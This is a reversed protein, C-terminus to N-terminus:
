EVYWKGQAKLNNITKQHASLSNNYYFNMKNDTVFYTATFNKEPSAAALIASESPACLPGPPLGETKYTNYRDNGYPYKMTPDSELRRPGQWDPSELRNYFVAAVKPMDKTSASAELEVVSAMTLIEHITYGSEKIQNRVAETLKNDLNQLMKRIALEACEASDYNYFEYTDPFLYGEFKYHVESVPIENVFDFDYKGNKVANRFDSKTCVGNEELIKMIDDISAQEPITVKVSQATAGETQLMKALDGYGIENTFTYVGYQYTGDYGAVKSYLRFLIESSIAGQEKLEAAIDATGMGKEIEVVCTNGRNLGIGLFESAALLISFALIISIAFVVIIWVITKISKTAGNRRKKSKESKKRSPKLPEDEKETNNVEEDLINFGNEGILYDFDDIAATRQPTVEVSNEENNDYTNKIDENM